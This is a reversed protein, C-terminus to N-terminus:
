NYFAPTGPAPEPRGSHLAHIEDETVAIDYHDRDVAVVYLAADGLKRSFTGGVSQLVRLENFGLKLSNFRVFEDIPEHFVFPRATDYVAVHTAPHLTM